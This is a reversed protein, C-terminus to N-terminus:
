NSDQLIDPTQSVPFSKCRYTMPKEVARDSVNVLSWLLNHPLDKKWLGALYEDKLYPQVEKAIGAIAILRDELNTLRCNSYIQIADGWDWLQGIDRWNKLTIPLWADNHDAFDNLGGPLGAPFTECAQLTQCEWFLQHSYHLTRPSLMREQFVWGRKNLTADTIYACWMNARFFCYTEDHGSFVIRLKYPTIFRTEREQFLGGGIDSSANAAINCLSHNYVKGMEVSEAHWDKLSDQLICLSDIWLYRAGLKRTVQLADRFTPSLSELPIERKLTDINSASLKLMNEDSWRHSLCTYLPKIHRLNLDSSIM